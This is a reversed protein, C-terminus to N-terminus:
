APADAGVGAEAAGVLEVTAQIEAEDGVVVGGVDLDQNWRLGFSQRDIVARATYRARPRGDPDITTAGVQVIVQVDHDVGHLDLRGNVVVEHGQVQVVGSTFRALPHRQVDLFESSRVHADREADGTTISALDVWVDLTSLSPQERDVFLTGGWREFRGTIRQVVIHRLAFALTSREGDIAWGRQASGERHTTM